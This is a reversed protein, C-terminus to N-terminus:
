KAEELKNEKKDPGFEGAEEDLDAARAQLRIDTYRIVLPYRAPRDPATWALPALDFM